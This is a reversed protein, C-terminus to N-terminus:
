SGPAFRVGAVIRPWARAAAFAAIVPPSALSGVLAATWAGNRAWCCRVLVSMRPKVFERMSWRRWCCVWAAASEAFERYRLGEERDFEDEEKWITWIAALYRM